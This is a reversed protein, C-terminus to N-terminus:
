AREAEALHAEHQRQLGEFTLLLGTAEEVPLEDARLRAVLAGSRSTSQVKAFMGGCCRSRPKARNWAPLM